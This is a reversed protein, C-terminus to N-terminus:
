RLAQVEPILKDMLRFLESSAQEMEKFNNIIESSHGLCAHANKEQLFVLNKNTLKHVIEHPIKMSEYSLTKGFRKKGETNYWKGLSCEHVDISHLKEECRILSNYARSKYIMHDIKTLVIFISNEMMYSSSVIKSSTKSLDILTNEFDFIKKSSIMVVENMEQASSEIGHMDQKLLGISSSIEQTAKHTREALKRVEDAVVAFGRGHEGARAAEIAANLALLNTQDAIDSILNLISSIEETRSSMGVIANNNELSKQTLSELDEIINSINKRSENALNEADKTVSTVGKVNNINNSLDRQIVSLSETVDVFMKSLESNLADRKKIIDQERMVDINTKILSIAKAFDGHMGETKLPKSFDGNTASKISNYIEHTFTEIQVVLKNLSSGMIGLETHATTDIKINNFNGECVHEMVSTFSNLASLISRQILIALIFIVVTVALSLTFVGFKYFVMDNHAKLTADSLDKKKLDVVKQFDERSAKAPPTLEKKYKEYITLNDRAISEKDLSKMLNFSNDLFLYTSKKAREVLASSSDRSIAELKIFDNKILEIQEKLENINKEYDNGLMIDRNLRSVYNLSKEIELTYLAGAVSNEHLNKYGTEVNNFSFFVLFFTLLISFTVFGILYRMKQKISVKNFNDM